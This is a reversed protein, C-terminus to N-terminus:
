IRKDNKKRLFILTVPLILPGLYLGLVCWMIRSFSGYGRRLTIEHLSLGIALYIFSIIYDVYSM